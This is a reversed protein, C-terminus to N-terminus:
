YGFGVGDVYIVQGTIFRAEDSVLFAVVGAMDAPVEGRVVVDSVAFRGGPKLVRLMEAITVEPRPAFMHGFQSVVVDFSNPLFPLNEADGERWDIQVAAIRANDGGLFGGAYEAALSFRQGRTTEFPNDRSDILYVPRLSSNDIDYRTTVQDGPQPQGAPPPTEGPPLPRLFSALM